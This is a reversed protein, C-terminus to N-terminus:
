LEVHLSPGLRGGVDRVQPILPTSRALRRSVGGSFRGPRPLTSDGGLQQAREALNALGHGPESVRDEQGGHDSVMLILLGDTHSVAVEIPGNGHRDANSLGERLAAVLGRLTATTLHLGGPLDFTVEPLGAPGAGHHGIERLVASQVELSAASPTEGEYGAISRRLEAITGNLEEIAKEAREAPVSDGENIRLGTELMMGVGFLRQIVLDHLDRSIRDRDEQVITAERSRRLESYRLAFATRACLASVYTTDSDPFPSAGARRLAVALLLHSGLIRIPAALWPGSTTALPGESSLPGVGSTAGGQTVMRLLNGYPDLAERRRLPDTVEALEPSAVTVITQLSGSAPDEVRGVVVADCEVLSRLGDTFVAIVDAEASGALAMGQVVGVVEDLDRLKEAHTVLEGNRIALGAATALWGVRDEDDQSFEGQRKQGLLLHAYLRDDVMIPVSLLTDMKPHHAPFGQAEPHGAVDSIRRPRPDVKPLGLLGVNHPLRGIARATAESMGVHVFRLVTGDPSLVQLAGFRADCMDAALQMVRHLTEDLNFAASDTFLEQDWDPRGNLNPGIPQPNASSDAPLTM